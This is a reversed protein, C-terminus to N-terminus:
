NALYERLWRGAQGVKRTNFEAIEKGDLSQASYNRGNFVLNYKTGGINIQSFRKATAHLRDVENLIATTNM